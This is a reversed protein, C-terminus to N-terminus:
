IPVEDPDMALLKDHGSEPNTSVNGYCHDCSEYGDSEAETKSKRVWDTAAGCQPEGDEGINHYAIAGRNISVAVIETGDEQYRTM